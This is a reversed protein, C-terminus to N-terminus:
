NIVLHVFIASAVFAWLVCSATTVQESPRRRADSRHAAAAYQHHPVGRGTHEAVARDHRVRLGAGHHAGERAGEDRPRQDRV